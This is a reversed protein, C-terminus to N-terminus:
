RFVARFRAYAIAGPALPYRLQWRIHTYTEPAAARQVGRSDRVLLGRAPAFTVGGDISFSVVAGPAAASDALYHTNAPVAKTVVVNHAATTGPNRIKVTYYVIQGERIDTAPIWAKTRTGDPLTRTGLLAAATETEIAVPAGGPNPPASSELAAVPSFWAILVSGAAPLWFVTRFSLDLAMSASYPAFAIESIRQSWV